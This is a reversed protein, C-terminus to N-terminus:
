PEVETHLRVNRFLRRAAAAERLDTTSFTVDDILWETDAAYAGNAWGMLYGFSFGMPGSTPYVNITDSGHIRTFMSEGDWRRYLEIVGDSANVASAIKVHLVVQMWRGRDAPVSIFPTYQNDSGVISDPHNYKFYIVSGGTSEIPRMEWVVRASTLATYSESWLSLFKNNSGTGPTHSYNVPVRLWYRIWLEPYAAGLMFRQETM